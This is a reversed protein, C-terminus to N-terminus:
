QSDVRCIAYGLHCNRGSLHSRFSTSSTMGDTQRNCPLVGANFAVFPKEKGPGMFNDPESETPPVLMNQMFLAHYARSTIVRVPVRFEEEWVGFSDFIYLRRHTNLYDVARECSTLFSKVDLKVNVKEM